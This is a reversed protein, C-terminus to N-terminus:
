NTWKRLQVEPKMQDQQKLQNEEEAASKCYLDKLTKLEDILAKNQNELVAVRNELCKIYEKKKRRCEKAAERNKQLRLERKKNAEESVIPGGIPSSAASASMHLQHITTAQPSQSPAHHQQTHHHQQQQQQHHHHQQQQPHNQVHNSASLHLPHQPQQQQQQHHHQQHHQQSHHLHTHHQQQQATLPPPQHQSMQTAAVNTPTPTSATSASNTQLDVVSVPSHSTGTTTTATPDQINQNAAAVAANAVASNLLDSAQPSPSGNAPGHNSNSVSIAPSQRSLAIPPSLQCAQVMQAAGVQHSQVGLPMLPPPPAVEMSESLGTIDEFIKKYSPRRTIDERRKKWSHEDAPSLHANLGNNNILHNKTFSTPQINM